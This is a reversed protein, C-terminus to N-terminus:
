LLIRLLLLYSTSLTALFDSRPRRPIGGGLGRRGRRGLEANRGAVSGSYKSPLAGFSFCGKRKWFFNWGRWILFALLTKEKPTTATSPSRLAYADDLIKSSILGFKKTYHGCNQIQLFISRARALPAPKPERKRWTGGLCKSIRWFCERRLVATGWAFSSIYWLCM